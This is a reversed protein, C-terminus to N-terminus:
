QNNSEISWCFKRDNSAISMFDAMAEGGASVALEDIFSAAIEEDLDDETRTIVSENDISDYYHGSNEATHYIVFSRTGNSNRLTSAVGNNMPYAIHDNAEIRGGNLQEWTKVLNPNVKGILKCDDDFQRTLHNLHLNNFSESAFAGNSRISDAIQKQVTDTRRTVDDIIGDVETDDRYHENQKTAADINIPGASDEDDVVDDAGVGIATGNDDHDDDDDILLRPHKYALDVLQQQQQQQLM